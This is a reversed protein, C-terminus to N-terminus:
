QGIERAYYQKRNRLWEHLKSGNIENILNFSIAPFTKHARGPKVQFCKMNMLDNVVYHVDATDCVHKHATRACTTNAKDDFNAVINQLGSLAKSHVEINNVTQGSHMHKIHKKIDKVIYEMQLDTPIYTTDKGKTNVFLGEFELQAEHESLTCLQHTLLRLLENAYKSRSNGAKLYLMAVKLVTLFHTRNPQKIEKQLLM